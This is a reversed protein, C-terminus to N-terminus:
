GRVCVSLVFVRERLHAEGRPHQHHRQPEHVLAPNPAERTAADLDCVCGVCVGCVSWVCVCEVCRCVRVCVRVCVCVCVCVSSHPMPPNEPPPTSTRICGFASVRFMFFLFFRFVFFSFRFGFCSVRSVFFRFVFCSTRSIFGSVRFSTRSVFGSVRFGLFSFVFCSVHLVLFSARFGFRLVLFWVRFGFGLGGAGVAQFTRGRLGQRALGHELREGREEEPDLDSLYKMRVSIFQTSFKRSSAIVKSSLITQGLWFNALLQKIEVRKFSIRLKKHQLGGDDRRAHRGERVDDPDHHVIQGVGEDHDEDEEESEGRREGDDM